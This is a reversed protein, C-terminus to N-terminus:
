MRNILTDLMEDVTSIVKAAAQYGREFQVLNTMEEDLNVGSEGTRQADVENVVRDQTEVRRNAAQTQVGLDVVLRKYRQDPGNPEKALDAMRDANTGDKAGPAAGYDAMALDKLDGVAMRINAANVPDASGSGFFTGGRVGADTQGQAHAANV